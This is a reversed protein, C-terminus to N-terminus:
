REWWPNNLNPFKGVAKDILEQMVDNIPQNGNVTLINEGPTIAQFVKIQSDLMAPSMFHSPRHKLRQMLIPTPVDIWVLQVRELALQQRYSQKLASCTMVTERNQDIARRLDDEIAGLWQLRDEDELPQQSIMKTINQPSHLRDAELFDCELWKALLRGITSKGSGSVGIILWICPYKDM